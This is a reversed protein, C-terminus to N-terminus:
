AEDIRSTVDRSQPSETRAILMGLDIRRVGETRQFRLARACSGCAGCTLAAMVRPFPAHALAGGQLRGLDVVRESLCGMCTAYVTWRQRYAFCAHMEALRWGKQGHEEFTANRLAAKDAAVNASRVQGAKRPSWNGPHGM